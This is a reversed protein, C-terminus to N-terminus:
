VPIDPLRTDGCSQFPTSPLSLRISTALADTRDGDRAGHIAAILFYPVLSIM